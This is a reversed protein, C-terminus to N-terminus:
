EFAKIIGMFDESKLSAGGILGGDVNPMSFLEKANSPKCSGGYLITLDEAVQTGYKAAVTDRVFKHIEEAQEKTATKGTGIAWVPEYALVVKGFDEASLGFLGNEIQGKVVDFAKGSEREELKEGICVIPTLGEKLALEVKTKVTEDTEGYYARRESHGIIVHSVGASKLMAASVEGTYAGMDFASCNQAGVNFRQEDFEFDTLLELYPFPPCIIVECNLEDQEDLRDLIDDVLSEAEGFTLNMKWNAAVINSRM